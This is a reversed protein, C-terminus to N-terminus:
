KRRRVITILALSLVIGVFPFPLGDDDAEEPVFGGFWAMVNDVLTKGDHVGNNWADSEGAKETTLAYMNKYSTFNPEGSVVIYHDNGMDQIVMVPYSGNVASGTETYYDFDPDASLDSDGAEAEPSMKMVIEVGTIDTSLLDVVAGSQYGLVYTPSHFIASTVGQVFHTNMSGGTVPQTAAPRYSRADNNVPDSITGAGARINAGLKELIGNVAEPTWKPYLSPDDFDSDGALWLLRPKDDTFWDSIETLETATFASNPSAMLLVNTKSPIAFTGTINAFSSGADTLNNQLGVADGGRAGINIAADHTHDFAVTLNDPLTAGSANSASLGIVIIMFLSLLKIKKM